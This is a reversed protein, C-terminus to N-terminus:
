RRCSLLGLGLVPLVWTRRFVNAFFLLACVLAIGMLINKAPLM